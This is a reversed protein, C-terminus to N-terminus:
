MRHGIRMVRGGGGRRRRPRGFVRRARGYRSRRRM